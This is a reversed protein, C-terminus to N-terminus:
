SNQRSMRSEKSDGGRGESSGLFWPKDGDRPDQRKRLATYTPDSLM